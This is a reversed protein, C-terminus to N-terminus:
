SETRNRRQAEASGRCLRLGVGEEIPAGSRRGGRRKPCRKRGAKEGAARKEQKQACQGEPTTGRHLRLM